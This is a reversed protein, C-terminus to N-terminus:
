REEHGGIAKVGENTGHHVARVGCEQHLDQAIGRLGRVHAQHSKDTRRGPDQAGEEEHPGHVPGRLKRVRPKGIHEHPGRWPRPQQVAALHRHEGANQGQELEPLAADHRMNRFVALESRGLGHGHQCCWRQGRRKESRSGGSDYLRAATPTGCWQQLSDGLRM